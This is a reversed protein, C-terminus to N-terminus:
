DRLYGAVRPGGRRGSRVADKHLPVPRLDDAREALPRPGRPILAASMGSSTRAIKGPDGGHAALGEAFASVTAADKGRTAFPVGRSDLM